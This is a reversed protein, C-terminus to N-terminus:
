EFWGGDELQRIMNALQDMEADYEGMEEYLSLAKEYYEKTRGYDRESNELGQQRDAELFALRKYSEYRNPYQEAMALLTQEAEDLRDTQQYLVAINELLQLTVYGQEKLELFMALSNEYDGGNAYAEALKETIRLYGRSGPTGQWEQLFAIEEGYYSEGLKEYASSCFIVCRYRVDDSDTLSLAEKFLTVAEELRDDTYAIEGELMNISDQSFGLESARALIEGAKDVNGTKAYVIGLDRYYVSNADDYELAQQLSSLANDYQELEYYANGLIYYMDGLKQEDSRGHIRYNGSHMASIGYDACAEYDGIEYLRRVEAEYADVRGPVKDIAATIYNGAEDYDGAEILTQAQELMANYWVLREQRLKVLGGAILAVGAAYLVGLVALRLRRRRHWRKYTSDLERIEQLARWVESGNAYRGAPELSMMKEVIHILGESIYGAYASLPVIEEFRGGPSTGTLLHYLTAGLSYIDSREDIGQGFMQQTSKTTPSGSSIPNTGSKTCYWDYDPYQEPPAYGHSLGTASRRDQTFALSVNFDILCINRQPTLMINSPKIDSHIVPPTQSHLCALAEALQRAWKLVEKQSFRGERELAKDLSEGEIYDIVTFVEGDVELFDYVQPLYSNRLNKLIDAETRSNLMGKVANKIQKLVVYKQLNEHYAKYVIGSSGSGIQEMLTYTHNLCVGTALM